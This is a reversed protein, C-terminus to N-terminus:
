PTPLAIQFVRAGLQAAALEALEVLVRRSQSESLIAVVDGPVIACRRLVATFAAIWRSEIREVLM